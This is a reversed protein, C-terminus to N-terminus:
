LLSVNNTSHPPERFHDLAILLRGVPPPQRRAPPRPRLRQPARAGCSLRLTIRVLALSPMQRQSSGRFSSATALRRVGRAAVTPTASCPLEATSTVTPIPPSSRSRR